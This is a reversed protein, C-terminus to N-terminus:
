WGRAVSPPPAKVTRFETGAIIHCEGVRHAHSACFEIAVLGERGSAAAVFEITGGGLRVRDGASHPIGLFAAWRSAMADPDASAIRVGAIGSLASERSHERWDPGAPAWGGGKDHDVSVLSGMHRPHLHLTSWTDSDAGLVVACGLAQARAAYPAVEDVELVVMYGAAGAGRKELFRWVAAEPTVPSVLELFQDGVAFVNNELGFAAVGPDRYWSSLGFISHLQDVVEHGTRAAVAVQRLRVGGV